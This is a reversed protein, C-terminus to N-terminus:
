TMIEHNTPKLGTDPETSVAALRSSSGIRHRGRRRGRGQECETDRERLFLILFFIKLSVFFSLSSDLCMVFM